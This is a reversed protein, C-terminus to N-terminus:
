YINELRRKRRFIVFILALVGLIGGTIWLGLDSKKGGAISYGTIKNGEEKILFNVKLGVGKGFSFDSGENKNKILIIKEYEGSEVNKPINLKVELEEISNGGVSVEKGVEIWDSTTEIEFELENSKENIILFNGEYNEGPKVEGFDLKSPSLGVAYVGPCLLFFLFLYILKM